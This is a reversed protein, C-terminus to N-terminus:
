LWKGSRENLIIDSLKRKERHSLVIVEDKTKEAILDVIGTAITRTGTQARVQSQLRQNLGFQSSYYVMYTAASVNVARGASTTKAVFTDSDGVQFSQKNVYKVDEPIRGDYQVPRRGLQRCLEMVDDIDQNFRAWVIAPGKSFSFEDALAKLRPNDDFSVLRQLPFDREVVGLDDCAPCGEGDCKLCLVAARAEPWFGSTIQQLRLYRTLVNAVSVTGIAAIEAEYEEEMRDYIARQKPLLQLYRKQYIPEPVNPFVDKFLVRYTYPAIKAQLEPMNQYIPQNTEEDKAITEYPVKVQKKPDYRYETIVKAYRNRYPYFSTFGLIRPDLFKYQPYLDMPGEGTPTGDLCMRYRFKRGLIDLAKTRIAGPAKQLLTSEDDIMIGHRGKLFAYIFEEFAKTIIAEGNVCIIVVGKFTFASQLLEGYAKNKPVIQGLTAKATSKKTGARDTDWQIVMRQIRDPLYLNLEDVWNRPAGSPMSPILAFQIKGTEYLYGIRDICPRTKGTRQEMSFFFAPADASKLFATVQHDWRPPEQPTRDLYEQPTM